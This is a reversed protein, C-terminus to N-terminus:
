QLLQVAHSLKNKGVGKTYTGTIVRVEDKVLDDLVVDGSVEFNNFEGFIVTHLLDAAVDITVSGAGVLDGDVYIEGDAGVTNIQLTARDPLKKVDIDLNLNAGLHEHVTCGNNMTRADVYFDASQM